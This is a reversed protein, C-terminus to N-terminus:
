LRLFQRWAFGAALKMKEATSLSVRETFVDCDRREIEELLRQYIAVLSGLANRSEPAILPVLERGAAYYRKARELEFRVLKRLAPSDKGALVEAESVGHQRLDELPLYIRGRGADEVLDRLINTMQFAIGTEEALKVARPETFGFVHITMIGIVSAVHYCYRYTDAWTECRNQRADMETGTILEHMYRPEIKFQRMTDAVAPLVAHPSAPEVDAFRGALADDFATRWAASAALAKQPDTEDDSFDDALRTFAYLACIGRYRERPLVTFAFHFNSARTKTIEICRAYSDDLTVADQM